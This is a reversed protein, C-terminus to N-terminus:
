SCLRRVTDLLVAPDIPKDLCEIAGLLAAKYRVNGSASLVLVPIDALAPDRRQQARFEWGDMVPMMLDLIILQPRFGNRLQELALRGNAATTVQCGESSLLLAVVERTAEDDEILLISRRLFNEASTMEKVEKKLEVPLAQVLASGTVTYYSIGRAPFSAAIMMEERDCPGVHEGHDIEEASKEVVGAERGV